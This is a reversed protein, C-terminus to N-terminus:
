PNSLLSSLAGTRQRQQVNIVHTAGIGLGRRIGTWSIGEWGPDSRTPGLENGPHPAVAPQAECQHGAQEEQQHHRKGHPPDDIPERWEIM